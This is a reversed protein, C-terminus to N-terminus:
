EVSVGVVSTRRVCCDFSESYKVAACNIARYPPTECMHSAEGCPSPRSGWARRSRGAANRADCQCRATPISSPPPTMLLGVTVGGGSAKVKRARSSFPKKQCRGAEWELCSPFPLRYPPSGMVSAAAPVLRRGGHCAFLDAAAPLRDAASARALLHVFPCSARRGRGARSAAIEVGLQGEM